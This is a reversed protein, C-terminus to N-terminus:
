SEHMIGERPRYRVAHVETGCYHFMFEHPSVLTTKQLLPLLDYGDMQRDGPVSEGMAKAVTPLVDMLSTPEDVVTGPPIHGPWRMVAPVRIGGDVTGHAKGGPSFFISFHKLIYFDGKQKLNCMIVSTM